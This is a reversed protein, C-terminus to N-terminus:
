RSEGGADPAPMADGTASNSYSEGGSPAMLNEIEEWIKREDREIGGDAWEVLCDSPGYGTEGLVVVKGTYAQKASLVEIRKTIEEFHAEAVRVVLRPERAMDTIAKRVVEEIEDLGNKAATVPFIKSMAIKALMRVQAMQQAWTERSDVIVSGLKKEIGALLVNTQRLTDDERSKKGAAFGAEYAEKKAADLHEQTFVPRNKEEVDSANADSADFAIDFLFKRVESSAGVPRQTQMQETSM